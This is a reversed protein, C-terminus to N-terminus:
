ADPEETEPIELVEAEPGVRLLGNLADESRHTTDLQHETPQFSLVKVTLQNELGGDVKVNQVDPVLKSGIYQHIRIRDATKLDKKKLEKILERMPDYNLDECLSYLAARAEAAGRPSKLSMLTRDVDAAKQALARRGRQIKKKNSERKRQAELQKKANSICLGMKHEPTDPDRKVMKQFIEQARNTIWAEEEEPTMKAPM